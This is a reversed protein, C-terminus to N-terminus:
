KPFVGVLKSGAIVAFRTSNSQFCIIHEGSIHSTFTFTGQPGYLKSLQVQLKFIPM